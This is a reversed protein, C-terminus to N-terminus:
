PSNSHFKVSADEQAPFGSNACAEHWSGVQLKCRCFENLRGDWRTTPRGRARYACEHTSMPEWRSVRMAWEDPRRAFRCVM